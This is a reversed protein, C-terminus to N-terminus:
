GLFLGVRTRPRSREDVDHFLLQALLSRSSSNRRPLLPAVAEKGVQAVELKLLNSTTAIADENTLGVRSLTGHSCEPIKPGEITFIPRDSRRHDLVTRAERATPLPNQRM